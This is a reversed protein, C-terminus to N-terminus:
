QERLLQPTTAISYSRKIMKSDIETALLMFQGSKFLIDDSQDVKCYILVVDGSPSYDIHSITLPTTIPKQIM